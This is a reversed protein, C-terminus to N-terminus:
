VMINTIVFNQVFQMYNFFTNSLALEQISLFHKVSHINRSKQTILLSGKEKELRSTASRRKRFYKQM